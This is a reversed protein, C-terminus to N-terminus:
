CLIKNISRAFWWSLVAWAMRVRNTGTHQRWKQFSLFCYFPSCLTTHQPRPFCTHLIAILRKRRRQFDSFHCLVVVLAPGSQTCVLLMSQLLSTKWLLPCQATSVTDGCFMKLMRYLDLCGTNLWVGMMCRGAPIAQDLIVMIYSRRWLSAAQIFLRLAECTQLFNVQM